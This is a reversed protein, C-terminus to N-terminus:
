RREPIIIWFIIYAIIGLGMSFLTGLVWAIRIITPDVNFYEGIGACVGAIMGKDSRYLKKMHM